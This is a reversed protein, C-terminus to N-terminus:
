QARFSSLALFQQSAAASQATVPSYFKYVNLIIVNIEILISNRGLGLIYVLLGLFLHTLKM